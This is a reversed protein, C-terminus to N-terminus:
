WEWFAASLSLLAAQPQQPQVHAPVVLEGALYQVVVVQLCLHMAMVRALLSVGHSHAIIEIHGVVLCQVGVM